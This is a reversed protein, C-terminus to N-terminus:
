VRHGEGGDFLYVLYETKLLSGGNPDLLKPWENGSLDKLSSSKLM